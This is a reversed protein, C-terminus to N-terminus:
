LGVRVHRPPAIFSATPPLADPSTVRYMKGGVSFCLHVGWKLDETTGPLRLCLAQLAEFTRSWKETRYFASIFDNKEFLM